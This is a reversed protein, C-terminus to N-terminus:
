TFRRRQPIVAYYVALAADPTHTPEARRKSPEADSYFTIYFVELMRFGSLGHKATAPSANVKRYVLPSKSLLHANEPERSDKTGGRGDQLHLRLNFNLEPTTIM